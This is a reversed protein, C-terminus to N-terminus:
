VIFTIMKKEFNSIGEELLMRIWIIEKAGDV